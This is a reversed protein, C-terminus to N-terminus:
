PVYTSELVPAVMARTWRASMSRTWSTRIVAMACFSMLGSITRAVV